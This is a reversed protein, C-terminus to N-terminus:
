SSTDAEHGPFRVVRTAKYPCGDQGPTEWDFQAREGDNLSRYGRPDAEVIHSFHAFVDGRLGPSTLV